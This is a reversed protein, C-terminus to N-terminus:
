CVTTIIRSSLYIFGITLQSVLKQARFRSAGGGGAGRWGMSELMRKM